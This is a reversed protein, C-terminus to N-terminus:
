RESDKHAAEAALCAACRQAKGPCYHGGSLVGLETGYAACYADHEHECGDCTAEGCEVWVTVPFRAM